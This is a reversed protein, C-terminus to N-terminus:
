TMQTIKQGHGFLAIKGARSRLETDTLRREALLYTVEFVLDTHRQKMASPKVADDANL